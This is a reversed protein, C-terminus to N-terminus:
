VHSSLTTCMTEGTARRDNMVGQQAEPRRGVDPPYKGEAAPAAVLHAQLHAIVVVLFRGEFHADGIIRPDLRNKRLARLIGRAKWPSDETHWLPVKQLYEGTVFSNTTM